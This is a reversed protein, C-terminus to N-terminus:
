TFRVAGAVVIAAVVGLAAGWIFLIACASRYDPIM